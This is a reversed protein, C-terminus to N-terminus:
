GCIYCWIRKQVPMCIRGVATALTVLVERRCFIVRLVDYKWRFCPKKWHFCASLWAPKFRPLIAFIMFLLSRVKFEKGFKKQDESAAIGAKLVNTVSVKLYEGFPFTTVVRFPLM